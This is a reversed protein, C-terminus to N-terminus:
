VQITPNNRRRFGVVMAGALGISVLGLLAVADKPEPTAVTKSQIMLPNVALVISQSQVNTPGVLAYLGAPSLEVTQTNLGALWGNATIIGSNVNADGGSISIDNTTDGSNIMFGSASATDKGSGDLVEWIAMTLADSLASPTPSTLSGGHLYYQWMLKLVNDLPDNSAAVNNVPSSNSSLVNSTSATEVQFGTYPTSTNASIETTLAICFGSASVPASTGFIAQFATADSPNSLTYPYPCLYAAGLNPNGGAPAGTSATVITATDTGPNGLELDVTLSQARAVSTVSATVFLFAALKLITKM